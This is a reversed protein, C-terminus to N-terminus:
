INKLVFCLGRMKDIVWDAAAPLVFPSVLVAIVLFAIAGTTEGAVFAAVAIISVIVSIVGCGAGMICLLFTIISTIASLLLRLPLLLTRLIFRMFFGGEILPKCNCVIITVGGLPYSLSASKLLFYDTTVSTFVTLTVVLRILYKM